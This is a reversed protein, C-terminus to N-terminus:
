LVSRLLGAVSKIELFDSQPQQYVNPHTNMVVVKKIAGSMQIRQLAGEPLLGHTAIAFVQKAGASQYAEAAKVLSGGTRIMDDYLIVVKGNVDANIGTVKTASGSIRKKYVFAAEVNMDNALSEVWKARGADTAALVFHEGKALKRAAEIVLGKAYIHHPHIEGELYHQIGSVHLDVFIVQNGFYAKPISSLLRARHKAKVVEGSKIAREMTSYGFYPICLVLKAAGSHVLGCALDYLEMTETANITGGVLLINQHKPLTLIRHYIEGDPFQKREVEGLEFDDAQALEKALYDYSQTHFILYPTEHNMFFLILFIISRSVNGESKNNFYNTYLFILRSSKM